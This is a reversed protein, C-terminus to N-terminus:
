SCLDQRIHLQQTAQEHHHQRKDHQSGRWLRPPARRRDAPVLLRSLNRRLPEPKGAGEFLTRRAEEILRLLRRLMKKDAAAWSTSDEWYKAYKAMPTGSSQDM